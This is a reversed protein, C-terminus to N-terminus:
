IGFANLEACKKNITIDLNQRKGEWEEKKFRAFRFENCGTWGKSRQYNYIAIGLPPQFAM